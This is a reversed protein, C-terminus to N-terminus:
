SQASFVSFVTLGHLKINGRRAHLAAYPLALLAYISLTHLAGCRALWLESKSPVM